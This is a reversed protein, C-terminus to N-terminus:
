QWDCSPNICVPRGAGTSWPHHGADCLWGEPCDSHRQCEMMCVQREPHCFLRGKGRFRSRRIRWEDAQCLLDRDVSSPETLECSDGISPVLLEDSEYQPPNSACSVHVRVGEPPIADPTYTVLPMSKPCQSSHDDFYFGSGGFANSAPDFLPAQKVDCLAGGYPGVRLLPDVPVSLYASREACTTFTTPRWAKSVPPLEWTMHCPVFGSPNRGPRTPLCEKGPETVPDARSENRQIVEYIATTLDDDCLSGLVSKDYGRQKAFEVLRRPPHMVDSGHMCSPEFGSGSASSRWQMRPDSLITDYYEDRVAPPDSPERTLLDSPVGALVVTMVTSDANEYLNHLADLYRQLPALQDPNERCRQLVEDASDGAIQDGSCDDRNTMFVILKRQAYGDATTRLFGVNDRDGHGLSGNAFVLAESPNPTAPWLAKLAAELPQAVPSGSATLAVQCDLASLTTAKDHYNHYYWVFRSPQTGCITGGHLVGDDGAGASGFGLDATVVGIHVDQFTNHWTDSHKANDRHGTVLGEFLRPLTARLRAIQPAMGPANDVVFLLDLRPMDVWWRRDVRANQLCQPGYEPACASAFCAAAILLRRLLRHLDVM